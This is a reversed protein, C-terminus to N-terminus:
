WRPPWIRIASTAPWRAACCHVPEIDVHAFGVTVSYKLIPQGKLIKRTAIKYGATVQSKATIREGGDGEFATGIAVDVRAVVVNDNPHLRIM